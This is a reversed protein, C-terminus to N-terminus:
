QFLDEHGAAVGQFTDVFWESVGEVIARLTQAFTILVVYLGPDVAPKAGRRELRHKISEVIIGGLNSFSKIQVGRCEKGIRILRPFPEEANRKGFALYM